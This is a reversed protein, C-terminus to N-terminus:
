QGSSRVDAALIKHIINPEGEALQQLIGAEGRHGHERKPKGDASGGGWGFAWGGRRKRDLLWVLSGPEDPGVSLTEKGEADTTDVLASRALLEIRDIGRVCGPLM